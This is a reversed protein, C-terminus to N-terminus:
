LLKEKSKSYAYHYFNTGDKTSITRMIKHLSPKKKSWTSEFSALRDAAYISSGSLYLDSKLFNQSIESRCEEFGSPDRLQNSKATIARPDGHGSDGIIKAIGEELNLNFQSCVGPYDTWIWYLEPPDHVLEFSFQYESTNPHQHYGYGWSLLEEMPVDHPLVIKDEVGFNQIFVIGGGEQYPHPTKNKADVDTSLRFTDKGGSRNKDDNAMPYGHSNPSIIFIDDGNTGPHSPNDQVDGREFSPASNVIIKAMASATKPRSQSLRDECKLETRNQM